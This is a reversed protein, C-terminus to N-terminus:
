NNTAQLVTRDKPPTALFGKNNFMYGKFRIALKTKEVGKPRKRTPFGLILLYLESLHSKLFYKKIREHVERILRNEDGVPPYTIAIKNEAKIDLLHQIESGLFSEFNFDNEHEVALVIRQYPFSSVDRWIYDIQMYETEEKYPRYESKNLESFFNLILSTRENKPAKWKIKGHLYECFKDFLENLTLRL